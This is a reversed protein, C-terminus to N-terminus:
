GWIAKIINERTVRWSPVFGGAIGVLIMSIVSVMFEGPVIQPTVLGMPFSLPHAIFYPVILTELIVTGAAIGILTYFLALFVYSMVIIHQKMGIAKMIGIQKKRSITAIFIVIFITVGAV